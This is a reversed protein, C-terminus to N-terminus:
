INKLFLGRVEIKMEALLQDLDKKCTDSDSISAEIMAAYEHGGIRWIRINRHSAGFRDLVSEIAERKQKIQVGDMERDLLVKGTDRILSRSWLSVLIAGVIGMAADMWQWGLWLGCLLAVIALISTLADTLVHIYAARLNLDHHHASHSNGAHHHHHNHHTHGDKHSLLLACIANVILGIFAIAIAYEYEINKPHLLRDISEIAMAVAIVLLLIASTYGGLIEVKWSGLAFAQDTAHKKAYYYAFVTIGIALTHTGMHWGDALLAMSNFIYGGVIEIVMVTATIILVLSSRRISSDKTM